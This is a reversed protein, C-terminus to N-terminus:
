RLRRRSEVRFELTECNEWKAVMFTRDAYISAGMNRHRAILSKIRPHQRRTMDFVRHNGSSGTVPDGAYGCVLVLGLAAVALAKPKMRADYEQPIGGDIVAM